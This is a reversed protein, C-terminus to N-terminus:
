RGGEVVDVHQDARGRRGDGEREAGADVVRDGHVGGVQARQRGAQGADRGDRHRAPQGVPQRDAELDHRRREGVVAAVPDGGRELGGLVGGAPGPEEVLEGGAPPLAAHVACELGGPRRVANTMTAPMTPQITVPRGTKATKMTRPTSVPPPHPTRGGRRM